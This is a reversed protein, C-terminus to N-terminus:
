RQALQEILDNAAETMAAAAGVDFTNIAVYV